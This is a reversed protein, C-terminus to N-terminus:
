MTYPNGSTGDGGTIKIDSKLAFCPRLGRAVSWGRAGGDNDVNCLSFNTLDGDTNVFRVLFICLFSYSNVNRSALWYNEGTTFISLNNMQTEDTEYNTDAGKMNNAGSVSSTFGLQVPGANESNKNTFTGNQNTPVSGVCRADIAYTTNLYKGAETNLTQIANNYSASATAWDSGGLKVNSINKDTIIQLGYQSSADYLVRCTVVGNTGVSSVGTDYKIYTGAKLDKTTLTPTPNPTSGGDNSTGLDEVYKVAENLSSEENSKAQETQEKAQKAKTVIGNDGLVLSISIGALIILVIITIVLAILTIGKEKKLIKKM